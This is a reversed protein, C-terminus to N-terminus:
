FDSSVKISALFRKDNHTLEWAPRPEDSVPALTTWRAERHCHECVAPLQGPEVETPWDCWRCYIDRAM